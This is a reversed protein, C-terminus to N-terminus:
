DFTRIGEVLKRISEPYVKSPNFNQLMKESSGYHKLLLVADEISDEVTKYRAKVGDKTHVYGEATTWRNRPYNMGFANNYVVFLKSQFYGTEHVSIAALIRADERSLGKLEAVWIIKTIMDMNESLRELMPSTLTPSTARFEQANVFSWTVFFLIAIMKMPNLKVFPSTFFQPM